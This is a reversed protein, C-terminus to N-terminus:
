AAVYMATPRASRKTKYQSAIKEDSFLQHFSRSVYFTILGASRGKYKPIKWLTKM